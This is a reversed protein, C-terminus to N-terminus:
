FRGAITGGCSPCRADKVGNETVAFGRRRILVKGCKPCVTDEGEGMVNGVYVYNLGEARGIALAKRLAEVPTPRAELYNFDPHFRSIHWPIDRDVEALFRAIDRLEDGSDNLGPVVLTTVEVWIKLTRMLRITDLVPELRAGCVRKYTEDKFAKLDVNAADLNPHFAELAEATMYGNTVFNNSLGAAKALRATDLAYEFFITPETYTYSISRCGHHRAARVIDEPSFTEGSLDRGPGKSAQSIQWNQCFACKFNCGATAISLSTSGPLFHYFPKKEIPDVHAAIVEGYVHTVLKGGRNERVGCVGLKGPAILCRHACLACSVQGGELASWLLADKIM